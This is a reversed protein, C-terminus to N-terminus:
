VLGETAGPNVTLDEDDCDPTNPDNQLWGDQDQDFDNVGDCDSDIGDYWIETQAPNISNDQDNCDEAISVYGTPQDCVTQSETEDGFGDQDSDLYWTPM